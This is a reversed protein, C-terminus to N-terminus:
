AAFCDSRHFASFAFGIYALHKVDTAIGKVQPEFTLLLGSVTSSDRIILLPTPMFDRIPFAKFRKHLLM